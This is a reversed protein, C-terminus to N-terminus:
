ILDRHNEIAITALNKAAETVFQTTATPFLPKGTEDVEDKLEIRGLETFELKKGIAQTEPSTFLSRVVPFGKEKLLTLTRKYMESALGQGRFPTSVSTVIIYAEHDCQFNNAFAVDTTRSLKSLAKMIKLFNNSSSTLSHLRFCDNRGDMLLQIGVVQIM